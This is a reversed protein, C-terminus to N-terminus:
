LLLIQSDSLSLCEPFERKDTKSSIFRRGTVTFGCLPVFSTFGSVKLVSLFYIKDISRLEEDKKHESGQM